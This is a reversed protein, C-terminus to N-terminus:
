ARLTSVLRAVLTPNKAFFSSLGEELRLVIREERRNHLKLPALIAHCVEHLFTCAQQKHGIQASIAIANTKDPGQSYCLGRINNEPGHEETTMTRVEYVEKDILVKKPLQM